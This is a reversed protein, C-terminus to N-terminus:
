QHVHKHTFHLVKTVSTELTIRQANVAIDMKQYSVHTGVVVSPRFANGQVFM